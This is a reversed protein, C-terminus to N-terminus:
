EALAGAPMAAREAARAAYAFARRAAPDAPDAPLRETGLRPLVPATM